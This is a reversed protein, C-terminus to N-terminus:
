APDLVDIFLLWTSINADALCVLDLQALNAAASADVMLASAVGTRGVPTVRGILRSAAGGAQAPIDVGQGLLLMRAAAADAAALRVLNGIHTGVPLAAQLDANTISVTNAPDADKSILWCARSRTNGQFTRTLAM